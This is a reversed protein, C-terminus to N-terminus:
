LKVPIGYKGIAETLLEPCRVNVTKENMYGCHPCNCGYSVLDSAGSIHRTVKAEKGLQADYVCDCEFCVFRIKKTNGEKIIDM